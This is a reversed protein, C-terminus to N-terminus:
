SQNHQNVLYTPTQRHCPICLTRGNDTDWLEECQKAQEPTTIRNEQIIKYFPKIHDVNLRGGRKRCFQCTWDDREFVQKRWKHYKGLNMVRKRLPSTGGKWNWHNKGSPINKQKARAARIKKRSEESHKKGKFASGHKKRYEDLGTLDQYNSGTQGKNWPEMGKRAPEGCKRSCYKRAGWQARSSGYRRTFEKGCAICIKTHTRSDM